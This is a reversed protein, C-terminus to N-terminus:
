TKSITRVVGADAVYQLSPSIDKEFQMISFEPLYSFSAISEEIIEEFNVVQGENSFNKLHTLNSLSIVIKNLRQVQDYYMDMYKIALEDEIEYRAVSHLGLLSAIPGRLDHSARYVFTDLQLNKTLLDNEIAKQGSMDRLVTSFYEVQGSSDLHPLVVQSVPILRGDPTQITNEGSWIEKDKLMKSIVVIMKRYSLWPHIAQITLHRLSGETPLKFLRRGSHNLYVIEGKVNSIGVVDPTAEIIANLRSKEEEMQKLATIDQATGYHKTHKGNADLAVKLSILLHRIEGNPRVIRFQSYDVYRPSDTELARRGAERYISADEPHILGLLTKLPVVNPGNPQVQLGMMRVVQNGLYFCQSQFDFEWSGLNALKIADSLSAQSKRLAETREQILQELNQKYEQLEKEAVKKQTIDQATGYAKILQKDEDWFMRISGLLYVVEGEKVIRYELYTQFTSDKADITKQLADKFLQKDEPHIIDRVYVAGPLRNSHEPMEIGILACFGPNVIIDLNAPDLEYTALKAMSLADILNNVSDEGEFFSSPYISEPLPKLVLRLHSGDYDLALMNLQYSKEKWRIYQQAHGERLLHEKSSQCAGEIRQVLSHKRALDLNESPIALLEALPPPCGALKGDEIQLLVINAVTIPM